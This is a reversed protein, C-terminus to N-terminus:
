DNIQKLIDDMNVGSGQLQAEVWQKERQKKIQQVQPQLKTDINNVKPKFKLPPLRPSYLERMFFKNQQQQYYIKAKEQIFNFADNVNMGTKASIEFYFMNNTKAYQDGYVKEGYFSSCLKMIDRPISKDDNIVNNRRCYGYVLISYKTNKDINNPFLDCQNALLITPADDKRNLFIWKNIFDFSEQSSIDYVIVQAHITQNSNNINDDDDDNSDEIINTIQNSKNKSKIMTVNINNNNNNGDEVSLKEYAGDSIIAKILSSKGVSKDGAILITTRYLSM